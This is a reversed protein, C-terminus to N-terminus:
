GGVKVAVLREVVATDGDLALTKIRSKGGATLAVCSKALGVWDAILKIAAANARGEDPM